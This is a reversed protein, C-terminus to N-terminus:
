KRGDAKWGEEFHVFCRLLIQEYNEPKKRWDGPTMHTFERFNRNFTTLSTFGCGYAISAISEDTRRMQECAKHIRVLNIYELVGMRMHDRFVRRLHTESVFCAAAMDSIRIEERFHEDVYDIVKLVIGAAKGEMLQESGVAREDEQLANERAIKILAAQLVSEAEVLCYDERARLIEFVECINAAIGPYEEEHFFLVGHNIDRILQEAKRPKQPFLARALKETDIFLYEWFSLTGPTSNTTHPFNKPIVSVFGSRYECVDEGFEMTGTGFRCVGIEMYNHFHLAEIDLGYERIWSEGLLAFVGTGEEMDYYRFEIAKRKKM